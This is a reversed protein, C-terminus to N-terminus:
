QHGNDYMSNLNGIWDNWTSVSCSCPIYLQHNFYKSHLHAIYKANTESLKKETRIKTYTDYELKTFKKEKREM